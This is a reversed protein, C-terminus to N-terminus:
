QKCLHIKLSILLLIRHQSRIETLIILNKISHTMPRFDSHHLMAESRKKVCTVKKTFVSVLLLKIIFWIM